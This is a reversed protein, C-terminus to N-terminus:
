TVYKKALLDEAEEPIAMATLACVEDQQGHISVQFSGTYGPLSEMDELAVVIKEETPATFTGTKTYYGELEVSYTYTGGPLEYMFVGTNTNTAFAEQTKGSKKVTVEAGAPVDFTVYDPSAARNITITYDKTLGYPSTATVVLVNTGENLPIANGPNYKGTGNMTAAVTASIGSHMSSVASYTISEVEFPVKTNYKTETCLFGHGLDLTQTVGDSDTYTVDEAELLGEFQGLTVGTTASSM